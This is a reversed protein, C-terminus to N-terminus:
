GIIYKNTEDVNIGGLKFILATLQKFDIRVEDESLDVKLTKVKAWVDENVWIKAIDFTSENLNTHAFSVCGGEPSIGRNIAVLLKGKQTILYLTDVYGENKWTDNNWSHNSMCFAAFFYGKLFDVTNM